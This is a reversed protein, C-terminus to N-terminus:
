LCRVGMSSVVCQLCVVVVFFFFVFVSSYLMFSYRFSVTSSNTFTVHYILCSVRLVSCQKLLDIVGVLRMLFVNRFDASQRCGSKKGETYAKGSLFFLYM